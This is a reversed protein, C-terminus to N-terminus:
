LERAGICEPRLCRSRTNYWDCYASGSAVHRSLPVIRFDGRVDPQRHCVCRIDVLQMITTLYRCTAQNTAVYMSTTSIVEGPCSSATNTSRRKRSVIMAMTYLEPNDGFCNYQPGAPNNIQCIVDVTCTVSRGCVWTSRGSRKGQPMIKRPVVDAM